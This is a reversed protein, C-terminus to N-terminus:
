SSGWTKLLTEKLERIAWLILHITLISLIVVWLIGWRGSFITNDTVWVMTCLPSSEFDTLCMPLGPIATPTASNYAAIITALLSGALQFLSFLKIILAVVFGVLGGIIAFFLNVTGVVIGLLVNVVNNLAAVVPTLLNGLTSVVDVIACFLDHCGSGDIVTTVQGGIMNRFQGNLWGFVSGIWRSVHHVLAIWYRAVGMIVRRLAEFQKFWNNLLKMLDCYFFRKLQSWHYFTWAGISGELPVPVVSCAPIFPPVYGADGGQGPFSGNGEPDICVSDLRMGQLYDDEDDVVVEFTFASDTDEDIEITTELTYAYDIQVLGTVPHLGEALVAASDITGVEVMTETVPYQYNLTVSKDVQGTYLSNALLRAVARITYTHATSEDDPKLLVTQTLDDGDRMFAQGASFTAGTVTWGTGDQDFEHNAFYCSGPATSATVPSLCIYRVEISAASSQQNSVGVSVFDGEHWDDGTTTLTYNDWDTSVPFSEVLSTIQLNMTAFDDDGGASRMRAQVSLTYEEEPDVMINNQIMYTFRPINVGQGEELMTIDTDAIYYDLSTLEPNANICASLVQTSCDSLDPEETLSPYLSVPEGEDYMTVYAVGAETPQSLFGLGGSIAVGLIGAEFNPLPTQKLQITQGIICGAVVSDGVTVTPQHLIYSYTITADTADEVVVIYNSNMELAYILNAASDAPPTPVVAVCLFLSGVNVGNLCDVPTFPIVATVTGPAVAAVSAGALASYAHVLVGDGYSPNLSEIYDFDFIGWEPHEDAASLPRTLIGGGEGTDCTIEIDDIAASSDTFDDAFSLLVTVEAGPSELTDSTRQTWTDPSATVILGDVAVGDVAFDVAVNNNAQKTHKFWMSILTVTCDLPLTITVGAFYAEGFENTESVTDVVGQGTRGTGLAGEDITYALDEPDDDFAVTYVDVARAPQLLTVSLLGIVLAGVLGIKRM